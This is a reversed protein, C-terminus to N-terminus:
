RLLNEIFTRKRTSTQRGTKVTMTPASAHLEDAVAGEEGEAEVVPAVIWPVICVPAEAELASSDAKEVALPM